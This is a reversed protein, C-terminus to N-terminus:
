DTRKYIKIEPNIKDFNSQIYRQRVKTYEVKERNFLNLSPNSQYQLVLTYDLEQNELKSFFEYEKTDPEFRRGDFAKSVIIYDPHYHQLVDLTLETDLISNFPKLRPLFKVDSAGFVLAKKDINQEMWNEVYYRSDSHMLVNVTLAYFFSYTLIATVLIIKTKFFSHSPKLFDALFKGGFFALVICSSLLYRVDNYLVVTIFFLYYSLVPIWLYWLLYLQDLQWLSRLLGLICVIFLPLGLSFKLHMFSQVLMDLHEFLKNGFRPHISAQGETILEIRGLFGELNFLLNQLIAFLAVGLLLSHTIKRDLLSEKLSISPNKHKLYLHHNIVLVIPTLIYLGYAQDKTCVAVVAMASFLLYDKYRHHKLIRIYFFLSVIFWFLYPIDLNIMKSYYTFPMILATILAAFVAARKEYIEKGCFYVIILISVALIVNLFRGICFLLTQIPLSHVDVFNLLDLILLPSYLVTLVYFHFPPYKYRWGNSFSREVGKLVISPTLEDATWGTVSPLGWDIGYLYVLFSLM